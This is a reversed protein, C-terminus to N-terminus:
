LLIARRLKELVDFKDASNREFDILLEQLYKFPEKMSPVTVKRLYEDLNNKLKKILEESEDFKKNRELTLLQNSMMVLMFAAGNANEDSITEGIEAYVGSLAEEHLQLSLEKDGLIDFCTAMKSFTIYDPHKPNDSIKNRYSLFEARSIEIAHKAIDFYKENSSKLLRESFKAFHYWDWVLFNKFRDAQPNKISIDLASDIMECALEFNGAETEIQTRIQYQRKKDDTRPFGDIAIDSFKRALELNELSKNLTLYCTSALSGCLRYYQDKYLSFDKARELSEITEIGLKLSEDYDFVDQLNVVRRNVFKLYLEINKGTEFWAQIEPLCKEALRNFEGVKGLHSLATLKYLKLSAVFENLYSGLWASGDVIFDLTRDVLSIVENFNRYVNLLCKLISGYIEILNEKEATFMLKVASKFIKEFIKYDDSDKPVSMAYFLAMAYHGATMYNKLNAVNSEIVIKQYSNKSLELAYLNTGEAFKIQAFLQEFYAYVINDKGITKEIKNQFLVIVNEVVDDDFNVSIPALKNSYQKQWYKVDNSTSLIFEAWLKFFLTRDENAINNNEDGDVKYFAREFFDNVATITKTVTVSENKMLHAFLIERISRDFVLIKKDKAIVFSLKKVRNYTDYNLENLSSLVRTAFFETWKGLVCLRKVMNRTGDDMFELLRNIVEERKYGFKELTPPTGNKRIASKYMDVCLSLFIPYGGTLKILGERLNKDGIGSKSLFEDSFKEDFANLDFLHDEEYIAFDKGIKKIKSRGAIVWLVRQLSHCILDEIWWDVPVDREEYILKEHPKTDKEDETLQEYTDLFIVLYVDDKNLWRSIDMAFLTPLYEKIAEPSIHNERKELEEVFNRYTQDNERRMNQIDTICDDLLNIGCEIIKFIPIGEAIYGAIDLSEGLVRNINSINYSQQIAQKLKQKHKNLYTSEKFIKEIRDKEADDGCKKYYSLCGKEFFPFEIKYNDSLFQKMANLTSLMETGSTFDYSVFKIRSNTTSSGQISSKLEQILYTKGVGGTGAYYILHSGYHPVAGLNERFRQRQSIRDVFFKRQNEANAVNVVAEMSTKIAGLLSM